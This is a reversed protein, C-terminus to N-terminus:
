SKSHQRGYGAMVGGVVGLIVGGVMYWLTADTIRGTLFRSIRDAFSYSSMAGILVFAMGGFSMTLGILRQDTM